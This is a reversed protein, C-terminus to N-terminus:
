KSNANYHQEIDRRRFPLDYTKCWKRVANDSVGYIKGIKVFSHNQILNELIEKSPKNKM